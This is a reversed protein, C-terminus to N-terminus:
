QSVRFTFTGKQEYFLNITSPEDISAAKCHEKFMEFNNEGNNVVFYFAEYVPVRPRGNEEGLDIVSRLDVQEEPLGHLDIPWLFNVTYIGTSTGILGIQYHYKEQAYEFDIDGCISGIRSMGGVKSIIQFNEFAGPQDSILVSKNTLQRLCLKSKFDFNPLKYYKGSHHELLTDPFIGSVWLTDGISIENAQPTINIPIIFSM